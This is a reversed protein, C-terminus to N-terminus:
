NSQLVGCRRLSVFRVKTDSIPANTMQFSPIMQTEQDDEQLSTQRQLKIVSSSNRHVVSDKTAENRTRESRRKGKRRRHESPTTAATAHSAAHMTATHTAAHMAAAHSAPHMAAAHTAPHM